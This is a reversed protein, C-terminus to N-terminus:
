LSLKDLLNKPVFKLARNNLKVAIECMMIDKFEDYVFELAMGNSCVAQFCIDKNQHTLFELVRGDLRVALRAMDDTYHEIFQLAFPNRRIALYCLNCNIFEHWAFQLAFGKSRVALECIEDTQLGANIYELAMGDYSVATEYLKNLDSSNYIDGFYNIQNIYKLSLKNLKVAQLCFDYNKWGEFESLLERHELIIKDSKFKNKCVCVLADPPIQIKRIWYMQTNSYEIWRGINDYDSFYIGGPSCCDTPNFAIPDINLGDIFPFNNHIENKKTLKYFTNNPYKSVFEKGTLVSSTM